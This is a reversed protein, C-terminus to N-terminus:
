YRPNEQKGEATLYNAVVLETTARRHQASSALKSFRRVPIQQWVSGEYLGHICPHDANSMLIYVGRKAALALDRALRQQDYWSFIQENYKLFNNTNHQVTYPPDVYLFDGEEAMSITNSFDCACLRAQRLLKSVSCFDDTPLLVASKTGKPVNFEGRLNVRYLGNFCTRNLYLFRAARTASTRCVTARIRYYYQTGHSRQHKRLTNWVAVPCDRLALYTEILEANLDSLIAKEPQVRFFVAGSGLFPELYRSTGIRLWEPHQAVLWRKGGAWKLFPDSM